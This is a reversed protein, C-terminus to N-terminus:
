RLSKRRQQEGLLLPLLLGAAFSMLGDESRIRAESEAIRIALVDDPMAHLAAEMQEAFTQNM